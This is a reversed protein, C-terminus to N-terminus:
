QLQQVEKCVTQLEEVTDGLVPAYELMLQLRRKTKRKTKSSKSNSGARRIGSLILPRFQIMSHDPSFGYDADAAAASLVQLLGFAAVRAIAM